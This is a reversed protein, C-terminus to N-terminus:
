ADLGRPNRAQAALSRLHELVNPSLSVDHGRVCRSHMLADDMRLELEADLGCGLAPCPVLEVEDM